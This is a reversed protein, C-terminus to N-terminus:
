QSRVSPVGQARAGHLVIAAAVVGAQEVRMTHPGFSAVTAGAQRARDLERPEWGGEPGILIRVERDQIEGGPQYLPGSADAVIILPDHGDRDTLADDLDTGRGLDLLWARGCQKAAERAIRDLREARHPGPEVVARASRLPSWAAAGVQCLGDILSELRDAKPVASLVHVAPRIRPRHEIAVIGARLTWSGGPGSKDAGEVRGSAVGGCGDLLEIPDGAELRKVRVAHRAEDGEVRLTAGPPPIEDVLVRHM